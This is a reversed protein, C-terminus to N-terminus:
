LIWLSLGARSQASRQENILAATNDRGACVCLLFGARARTVNVSGEAGGSGVKSKPKEVDDWEWWLM